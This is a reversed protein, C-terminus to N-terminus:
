PCHTPLPLSSRFSALHMKMKMVASEAGFCLCLVQPGPAPVSWYVTACFLFGLCRNMWLNDSLKYSFLWQFTMSSSHWKLYITNSCYFIRLHSFSSPLFSPFAKIKVEFRVSLDARPFCLELLSLSFLSDKVLCHPLIDKYDCLVFTNVLVCFTGNFSCILLNSQILILM